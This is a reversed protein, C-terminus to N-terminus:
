VYRYILLSMLIILVLLILMLLYVVWNSEVSEARKANNPLIVISGLASDDVQGSIQISTNSGSDSCPIRRKTEHTTGNTTNTTNTPVTVNSGNVGFYIRGSESRNGLIDNCFIYAYYSGNALSANIVNYGSKTIQSVNRYLTGSVNASCFDITADGSVLFVFQIPQSLITSGNIPHTLVINTGTNNGNTFNSANFICFVVGASSRYRSDNGLVLTAIDWINPDFITCNETNNTTNTINQSPNLNALTRTINSVGSGVVGTLGISYVTLNYITNSSLASNEYLNVSSSLNAVNNGNLYVITGLFNTTPNTWNWSISHNTVNNANLNSINSPIVDLPNTLVSAVAIPASRSPNTSKWDSRPASYMAAVIFNDLSSTQFTKVDVSLPNAFTQYNNNNCGPYYTADGDGTYGSCLGAACGHAFNCCGTTSTICQKNVPNYGGPCCKSVSGACWYVNSIGNSSDMVFKSSITYNGTVPNYTANSTLSYPKSGYDFFWCHASAFNVLFLSLVLITGLFILSKNKM